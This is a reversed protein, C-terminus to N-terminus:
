GGKQRLVDLINQMAQVQAERIKKRAVTGKLANNLGSVPRMKPTGYRLFISTAGSKSEDFGFPISAVNGEWTERYTRDLSEMTEGTSYKGGAPLNATKMRNEVQRNLEMKTARLADGVAWRIAKDGGAAELREAFDQLPGIDFGSNKRKAM